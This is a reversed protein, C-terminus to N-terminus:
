RLYDQLRSALYDRTQALGTRFDHRPAWGLRKKIKENSIVADGVDIAQAGESWDVHKVTGKRLVEVITHAIEAVSLEENGTAFFVEGDTAEHVAATVLASACDDVYLLNRRQRGDGFVTLERDQMALGIFYNVFGLRGTKIHARPGFVNAFRVVTAHIGYAAAYVLVSKESLTKTASYMDLPFEPHLEDVPSYVMRGVQTSTGVHVLKVAPNSCRAAELLSLTGGCNVDLATAPNRMASGHSTFAACHVIIDTDRVCATLQDLNRIDGQVLHVADRIGDVNHLNGGSEPDLCDYITVRAGLQVCRGALTSGIFGLGGTVLVRRGALASAM